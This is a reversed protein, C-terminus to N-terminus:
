ARGCQRVALSATLVNFRLDLQRLHQAHPSAVLLFIDEDTVRPDDLDLSTLHGLLPSRMVDAVRGRANRVKLSWLRAVQFLEEGRTLLIAADVTAEYPWGQWRGLRTAGLAELRQCM